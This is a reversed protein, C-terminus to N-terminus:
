LVFLETFGVGVLAALLVGVALLVYYRTTDPISTWANGLATAGAGIKAIGTGTAGTGSEKVAPQDSKKEDVTSPWVYQGGAAAAAGPGGASGSPAASGSAGSAQSGSAPAGRSAFDGATPATAAKGGRPRATAALAQVSPSRGDAIVTLATAVGSMSPRAVPDANLLHQLVLRLDREAASSPEGGSFRLELSGSGSGARDGFPVEGEMAYFLTAGLSYVDSWATAPRGAVVEPALFAKDAQLTGLGWNMIQVSGDDALLVNDPEVARHVMNRSHAAALASAVQSGLTATHEASLTGFETLFDTTSRGPVLETVLWATDGEVFVDFIPVSGPHKFKIANRALAMAGPLHTRLDSGIKRPKANVTRHRTTDTAVWTYDGRGTGLRQSLQYRGGILEGQETM